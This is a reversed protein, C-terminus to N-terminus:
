PIRGGEKRPVFEPNNGTRLTATALNHCLVPAGTIKKLEGAFSFHDSHAHTIVIFTIDEPNMGAESFADLYKERSRELGTDVIIAGRDQIMFMNSIGFSLRSIKPM